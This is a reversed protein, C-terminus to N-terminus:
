EVDIDPTAPEFKLPPLSEVIKVTEVSITVVRRVLRAIYDPEDDRNPDSTIGSRKNTTVQYQDIVWELASRNGLRYRHAEEPIGSLTFCDNIRVSSKDASLKLKTVQWSFSQGTPVHVNQALPYETANEYGVHLASLKYGADALERFISDRGSFVDPLPIRPLERKLNEAYRTRYTPHHLVAYVYYFIDQKTITDDNTATRFKELAWDTINNRRIAGDVAYTYLPFCQTGGNPMLDPISNVALPFFDSAIGVKLWLAINEQESQENPFISPFQGQRHILFDDFYLTQRCFPRYIASRLFKSAFATKKGNQLKSKLSSSWKVKKDDNDVFNDLDVGKGGSKLWRDVETNYFEIFQEVKKTLRKRSFDYVWEDRTTEAGRSYNSFITRAMSVDGAKDERRGVPLFSEYDGQLGDTLWAGVMNPTLTQWEVGSVTLREKLFTYKDNRTWNDPVRHYKIFREDGKKRIAVTIGAGVQIGFVNHITGSLKPNKRVNGHLDLHYIQDFDTALQKRMGDFAMGDVFGNNTVYCVIGDNEGLRDSAWRFFKVYADSLARKNSAKSDKAYTEAIRKDVSPYKRNKNNDNENQQGVNYPPNGIIVTIPASKQRLVRATNEESFMLSTQPGGGLDLTDTFCIGEFSRYQGMKEFYAHEINMSAVYYPLLMVENAFLEKDYKRKLDMPGIRRLINVMFNGTGTCPDLITVGASSLSKGFETQLVEEVSACMFDVIPQPTYVIGHTDATNRSFDQFFREYVDNLFGQKESWDGITKATEEITVYFYDLEKLFSQRSFSESTLASIVTEIEAAIVNRRVFEPNDFVNRFLRETLLHQILMEDLAEPKIQPNLAVRCLEYFQAFAAVFRTNTERAEAIITKLADALDPIRGSFESVAVRYEDIRENTHTFFQHLLGTLKEPKRLNAVLVRQKNQYLVATRTDEFVTNVLPYGVAIKKAIESELDDATDKAEWYGRPIKFEDRMTGDPKRGNSLSLEPVLTWGAVKAGSELLNSFATRLATEHTVNQAAYAELADYYSLVAKPPVFPSM